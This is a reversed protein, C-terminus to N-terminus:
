PEFNLMEPINDAHEMQETAYAQIPVYRNYKNM